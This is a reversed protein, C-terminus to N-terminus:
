GEQGPERDKPAEQGGAQVWACLRDYDRKKVALTTPKGDKVAGLEVLKKKFVEEAMNANKYIAYLRKSQPESIAEEAGELGRAGSFDPRKIREVPIGAMRMIEPDPNRLGALRAVGGVLWNTVAKKSVDLYDVLPDWSRQSTFFKDRSTAGGQWWIRCGLFRSEIWGECEYSYFSGGEKDELNVRRPVPAREYFIGLPRVIAEVGPAQLYLSPAEV